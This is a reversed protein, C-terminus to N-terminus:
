RWAKRQIWPPTVSRRIRRKFDFLFSIKYCFGIVHSSFIQLFMVFRGVSSHHEAYLRSLYRAPLIISCYLCFVFNALFCSNSLM